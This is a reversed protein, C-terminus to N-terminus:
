KTWEILKDNPLDYEYFKKSLSDIYIWKDALFKHEFTHGIQIVFYKSLDRIETRDLMWQFPITDKRVLVILSDNSENIYKITLSDLWNNKEGSVKGIEKNVPRPQDCSILLGLIFYHLFKRM